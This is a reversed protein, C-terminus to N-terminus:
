APVAERADEIFVGAGVAERYCRQGCILLGRKDLPFAAADTSGCRVCAAPKEEEVVILSDDQGGRLLTYRSMVAKERPEHEGCGQVLWSLTRHM